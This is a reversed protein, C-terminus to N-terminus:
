IAYSLRIFAQRGPGPYFGGSYASVAHNRDLLNRIGGTLVLQPRPNWRIMLDVIGHAPIRRFTNGFDNGQVQSSLYRGHLQLRLSDAPKFWGTVSGEYRPVLPLRKGVAEDEFEARVVSAHISIGYRDKRYSADMELGSRITDGINVNLRRAESFSIEDKMRLHFVTASLHWNDEFRKLGAEFNHGTEPELDANLPDSLPFGQYSATEDLAPYRYVRDWGAWFHLGQSVKQVLSVEASWGSKTIEGTFSSEEDIDPNEKYDPNPFTGRNTEIVPRLQNEVYSVKENDTRATELRLGGSLELTSSLERSSFIYGGLTLRGIDAFSRLTGREEDTYDKHRVEDGAIDLGTMLFGKDGGMRVRPAITLQRQRNNGFRGDLNAQRQRQLVGAHMQWSGWAEKDEGLVTAQWNEAEVREDGANNSQRPNARFQEYTLPGPFQIASDGGT